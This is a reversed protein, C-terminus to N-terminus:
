GCKHGMKKRPLLLSLFSPGVKWHDWRRCWRDWIEFSKSGIQWCCFVWMEFTENGIGSETYIELSYKDLNKQSMLLSLINEALSLKGPMKQHQPPRLADTQWGTAFVFAHHCFSLDQTLNHCIWSVRLSPYQVTPIENLPPTAPPARVVLPIRWEVFVVADGLNM